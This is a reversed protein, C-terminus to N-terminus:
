ISYMFPKAIMGKVRPQNMLFIRSNCMVISSKFHESFNLKSDVEVGSFKIFFSPQSSVTDIGCPVDLDM